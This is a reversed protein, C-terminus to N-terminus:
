LPSGMSMTPAMRFYVMGTSLPVSYAQYLFAPVNSTSVVSTSLLMSNDTLSNVVNLAFKDGKCYQSNTLGQPSLPSCVKQAAIIPGPFTGGALTTSCCHVEDFNLSFQVSLLERAILAM